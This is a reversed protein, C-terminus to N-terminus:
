SCVLYAQGPLCDHVSQTRRVALTELLWPDNLSLFPPSLQAAAKLNKKITTQKAGNFILLKSDSFALPKVGSLVVFAGRSGVAEDLQIDEFTSNKFAVRGGATGTAGVIESNSDVEVVAGGIARKFAVNSFVATGSVVHNVQIPAKRSDFDLFDCEARVTPASDAPALCRM